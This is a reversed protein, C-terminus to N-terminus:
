VVSRTHFFSGMLFYISALYKRFAWPHFVFFIKGNGDRSSSLSKESKNGGKGGTQVLRQTRPSQSSIKSNTLSPLSHRRTNNNRENADQVIKPSGNLRLKAKASETAAMYSPLTPSSQEGSVNEIREQKAPISAKRSSKQNDNSTLDDKQSLGGNSKSINEEKGTSEKVVKSELVAQEDSIINKSNSEPPPKSDTTPQNGSSLDPLEKKVLPEPVTEVIPISATTTEKMKESANNPRPLENKALPEPVTEVVPLNPPTTTIDHASNNLAKEGTHKPSETEGDSVGSNEVVPNHVKRLSRKVKELEYQPNEQVPDAPAPQSSAKRFNRKPKEFESPAQSSVNEVIAPRRTRKSRSTQPEVIQGNSQKRQSKLDRIKKPRPAPKWFFSKSWRESWNLVSNPGESQYHVNLPM